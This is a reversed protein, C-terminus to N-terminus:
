LPRFSTLRISNVSKKTSKSPSSFCSRTPTTPPSRFEAGAAILNRPFSSIAPPSYLAVSTHYFPASRAPHLSTTSKSPTTTEAPYPSPFRRRHRHHRRNQNSFLPTLTQTGFLREYSVAVLSM